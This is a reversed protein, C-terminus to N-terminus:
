DGNMVSECGLCVSPLIENADKIHHKYGCCSCKAIIERHSFLMESDSDVSVKWTARKIPKLGNNVRMQNFTLGTHNKYRYLTLGEIGFYVDSNVRCVLINKDASVRVMLYQDRESCWVPEDDMALLDDITLINNPAPIQSSNHDFWMKCAHEHLCALSDSTLYPKSDAYKSDHKIFLDRHPCGQICFDEPLEKIVIAM